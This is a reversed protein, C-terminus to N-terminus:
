YGKVKTAAVTDLTGIPTIPVSTTVGTETHTHANFASQINALRADVLGALALFNGAVGGLHITGDTDIRAVTAGGTAIEVVGSAYIRVRPGNADDSGIVVGTPQGSSAGADSAQTLAQREPFFGPVAVCHALHHRRVDDVDSLAGAGSWWRSWDGECPILLVYDGAAIPLSMFWQGVRPFIVPVCPIIPPDEQTVSGDSQEVPLRLMPQVDATQNSPDYRTVRGPMPGRVEIEHRDLWARMLEEMTPERDRVTM